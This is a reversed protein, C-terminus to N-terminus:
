KKQNGCYPQYDGIYKMIAAWAAPRLDRQLVKDQDLKTFDRWIKCYAVDAKVNAAKMDSLAATSEVMLLVAAATFNKPKAKAVKRFTPLYRNPHRPDNMAQLYAYAFEEDIAIRSAIKDIPGHYKKELAEKMGTPDGLEPYPSAKVERVGRADVIAAKVDLPITPDLLHAYVKPDPNENPLSSNKHWLHDPQKTLNAEQVAEVDVYARWYNSSTLPSDAYAHPAVAFLAFLPALM